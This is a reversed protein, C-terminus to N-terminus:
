QRFFDRDILVLYLAAVRMDNFSFGDIRGVHSGSHNSIEGASSVEAVVSGNESISMRGLDVSAVENDDADLVSCGLKSSISGLLSEDKSGAQLSDADVFGALEGQVTVTGDEAIQGREVGNRDVFVLM